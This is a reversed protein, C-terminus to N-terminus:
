PISGPPAVWLAPQGTVEAILDFDRDYHLVTARHVEACAAVLLDRLGVGRHRSRALLQQQVELARRAVALDLPLSVCQRQAALAARGQAPDRAGYVAELDIIACTAVARAAFLPRLAGAVVENTRLRALASKDILYLRGPPVM